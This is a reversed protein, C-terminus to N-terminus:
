NKKKTKNVVTVEYMKGKEAGTSTTIIIISIDFENEDPGCKIMFSTMMMIMKILSTMTMAAMVCIELAFFFFLFFLKACQSCPM